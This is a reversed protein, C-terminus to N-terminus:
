TITVLTEEDMKIMGAYIRCKRQAYRVKFESELSFVAIDGNENCIMM